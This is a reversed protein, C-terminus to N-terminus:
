PRYRRRAEYGGLMLLLAAATAALYVTPRGLVELAVTTVGLTPDHLIHAGQPYSWYLLGSAQEPDVSVHASAAVDEDRGDVTVNPAWSLYPVRQGAAGALAPEGDVHTFRVGGPVEVDVAVAIRTDTAQFPFAALIVDFKAGPGQTAGELHFRLTLQGSGLTYIADRLGPGPTEIRSPVERLVYRQLVPEGLDYAGDGDEDRFELVSDVQMELSEVGEQQVASAARSAEFSVAPRAQRAPAPLTRFGDDDDEIDDEDEGEDDDDRGEDDDERDRQGAEDDRRRDESNGPQDDDQQPPGEPGEGEEREDGDEEPPGRGPPDEEEPDQGDPGDEQALGAPAAALFLLLTLILTTLRM